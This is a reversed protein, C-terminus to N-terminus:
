LGLDCVISSIIEGLFRSFTREGTYKNIINPRGRDRIQQGLGPDPPTPADAPQQKHRYQHAQAPGCYAPGEKWVDLQPSIGLHDAQSHRAAQLLSRLLILAGVASVATRILRGRSLSCSQGQKEDPSRQRQLTQSPGSHFPVRPGSQRSSESRRVAAAGQMRHCKAVFAPFGASCRKSRKNQLIELPSNARSVQPCLQRECYLSTQLLPQQARRHRLEAGM